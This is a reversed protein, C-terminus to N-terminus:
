IRNRGLRGVAPRLPIDLADYIGPEAATLWDIAAVLRGVATANGGAAYNGDEDTAEVTVEIRPRGEVIVRHAGIGNPPAPWDPACSPHIRTIHEIVIAPEGEVIGQVEFRMAGQSGAAFEGMAATTITTDLERRAVTERIEDLEVGLARAMLRIQGGWVMTPVSPAVMPPDYDMPQGMGVLYRVSDPQDYSSYDFIEQCRIGDVVTGLGSMLLPLVDNGWGPDIGSVFLSGGGAEVAALVKDRQETPANRADYFAYLAPTVVVAGADIAAVIDALADDPRIEGSAAYVVAQPKAALAAAVDTTAAIGLQQDMGALEGADRGAKDPNHVIVDTLELGPHAAVARIAARGVNGTGWVTTSIM